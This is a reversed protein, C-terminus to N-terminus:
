LTPSLDTWIYTSISTASYPLPTSIYRVIPHFVGQESESTAEHIPGGADDPAKMSIPALREEAAKSSRLEHSTFPPGLASSRRLEPSQMDRSRWQNGEM